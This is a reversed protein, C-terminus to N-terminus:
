QTNAYSGYGFDTRGGQLALPSCAHMALALAWARDAHGDGTRPADYRVHGAPTVIRRLSCLDKRMGIDDRIHVEHDAFRQYMGTALVEKSQMTFPVPLVRNRGLAKQLLQAPVAGLGTSDVAILRWGWDEYSSLIMAQQEEWATRKCTRTEQEWVHGRRDVKVITLASLDNELGIDLGAYAEGDIWPMPDFVAEDILATQIYQLDGDLFSCRFLQAFLRPDGHAMKWCDDINVAMGEAIARDIDFSHKAYGSNFKSDTWFSHFLNGVGNPTSAIRIRGGHMSVASAGDWVAEPNELYAIEDIFVNGSFSRGGTSSPLALIRGGNAFRIEESKPQCEAWRSGLQELVVAHKKAKELVENAERQGVSIITTTDAFATAWLVAVAATTHSMGIQRSKLCLAFREPEFLWERQFPFFTEAWARFANAERQPLVGPSLLADLLTRPASADYSPPSATM